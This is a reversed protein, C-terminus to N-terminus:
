GRIVEGWTLRTGYVAYARSCAWKVPPGFLGAMGLDRVLNLSVGATPM